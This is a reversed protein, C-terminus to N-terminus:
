EGLDKKLFELFFKKNKELDYFDEAVKRANKKLIEIIIPNMILEMKAKIEQANVDCSKISIGEYTKLEGKCVFGNVNNKIFENMPPNDTTIVPTGSALSELIPIGISEWKTPMVTVDAERYLKLLEERSLDKNILVIDDPCSELNIPKQSAIILRTNPNNMLRFAKYVEQTNKRDQVGGYGASHFFTFKENKTKPIVPFEKFDISFPLYTFNRIKLGRFFRQYSVTSAILRDYDNAQDPNFRELALWAYTKVGLSKAIKNLYVKDDWWQNYENFIVADLRNGLIWAKFREPDINWDKDQIIDAPVTKFEESVPNNFIKYIYVSYEDALMKAHCLNLYAQGRGFGWYGVIGIRKKLYRV